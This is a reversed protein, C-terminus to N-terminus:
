EEPHLESYIEPYLKKACDPCISHSFEVESHTTIYIELQNWYGDDDRIKKCSSCIPLLGSLQKIEAIAKELEHNKQELEEKQQLITDRAIKLELHTNVRALLEETHFPKTIYDVGGNKLGKVIDEKETRATLFIVPIDKTADNKKLLECVEYGDMEPMSIDLLILDPKIKQIGKFLQNGDRAVQINYGKGMLIKGLVQINEQIDDVIYINM